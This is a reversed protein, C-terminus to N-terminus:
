RKVRGDFEIPNYVTMVISARKKSTNKNEDINKKYTKM